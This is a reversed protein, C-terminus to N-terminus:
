FSFFLTTKKGSVTFFPVHLVAHSYKLVNFLKLSFTCLFLIFKAELKKSSKRPKMELVVNDMLMGSILIGM